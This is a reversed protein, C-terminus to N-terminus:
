KAIAGTSKPVSRGPSWAIDAQVGYRRFYTKWDTVFIEQEKEGPNGPIPLAVMGVLIKPNFPVPGNRPSNGGYRQIDACVLGNHILLAQVETNIANALDFAKNFIKISDQDLVRNNQSETSNLQRFVVNTGEDTSQIVMEVSHGSPHHGEIKLPSTITNGEDLHSASTEYENVVLYQEVELLADTVIEKRMNKTLPLAETAIPLPRVASELSKVIGYGETRGLDKAVNLVRNVGEMDSIGRTIENLTNTFVETRNTQPADAVAM